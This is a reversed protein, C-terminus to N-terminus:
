YRYEANIEEGITNCQRKLHDSQAEPAIIDKKPIAVPPVVTYFEPLPSLSKGYGIDTVPTRDDLPVGEGETSPHQFLSIGTGHFSGQALSSSPNHDINDVASTTFIGRRLKPPCVVNEDHFRACVQNGLETSIALARNYNISLGLDYVKNITGKKRTEGHLLLGLYVPLPPEREAM